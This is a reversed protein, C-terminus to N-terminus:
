SIGIVTDYVSNTNYMPIVFFLFCFISGLQWRIQDSGDDPAPSPAATRCAPHPSVSSLSRQGRRRAGADRRLFRSVLVGSPTSASPHVSIAMGPGFDLNKVLERLSFIFGILQFDMVQVRRNTATQASPMATM